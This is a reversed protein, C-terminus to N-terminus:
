TSRRGEGVVQKFLDVYESTIVERSLNRELYDRGNSGLQHRKNPDHYLEVIANILKAPNGPEVVIGCQARQILFATDSDGDVTAIIPRAAAMYGLVKSPASTKGMGPSLTLICIDAVAQVEALKERPQFPLFHINPLNLLGAQSEMRDKLVGEGVLLILIDKYDLLKKAVDVLVEAGSVIGITGSYLLVFKEPKINHEKRFSNERPLTRIEQTDIWNPIVKIKDPSVKKSLLNKKFGESIVTIYTANRYLLREALRLMSILSKSRIVGTFIVVDPYIDQVNLVVPIGRIRSVLEILIGTTIAQSIVFILDPQSSLLITAVTASMSFSLYNVSRYFLKKSPSTYLYVRKITLGDGYNLQFLKKKYGPYVIGKPHNPFGTIVTVDAGHKVLDEGLEKLMIGIPAHEPPFWQSIIVIKM